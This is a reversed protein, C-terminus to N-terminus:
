GPSSLTTSKANFGVETAGAGVPATDTVSRSAVVAFLSGRLAMLETVQFLAGIVRLVEVPVNLRFLAAAPLLLVSATVAVPYAGTVRLPMLSSALPLRLKVM